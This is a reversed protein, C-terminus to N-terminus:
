SSAPFLAPLSSLWEPRLSLGQQVAREVDARVTEAGSEDNIEIEIALERLEASTNVTVRVQEVIRFQQIINELAAPFVNVSRVVVM